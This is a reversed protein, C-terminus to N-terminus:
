ALPFVAAIFWAALIANFVAAAAPSGSRRRIADASLRQGLSVFLMYLALLPMLVQNSGLFLFAGLMVTWLVGRLALARLVRRAAASAGPQPAGLAWEEALAYPLVALLVLPFRMWRAANMWVDTAQWNLLWSVALMVAFGLLAAALVNRVSGDWGPWFRGKAARLAPSSPAGPGRNWYTAMAAVGVILLLSALYDGSFLRLLRLPIWFRLVVVGLVAAVTWTAYVRWVATPTVQTAPSAIEASASQSARVLLSVAAPFFLMVGLLAFAYAMPPTPVMKVSGPGGLAHHVWNATQVGVAPDVLLSTHTARSVDSLRLARGDRFAADSDDSGGAAATWQMASDRIPFPDLSAIFVLLNRPLRAPLTFPTVRAWPEPQPTLPAPSIAITVAADFRDALRIAIAAGTSHGILVVPRSQAGADSIITAVAEAACREAREFSFPEDSDGHGPLDFTYGRLGTALMWRAVPEMLKRNASLGHFVFATGDWRDSEGYYVTTPVRCPNTQVVQEEIFHWQSTLEGWGWAAPILLLGFLASIREWRKM